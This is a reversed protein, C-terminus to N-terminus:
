AAGVPHRMGPNRAARALQALNFVLHAMYPVLLSGTALFVLSLAFGTVGALVMGLWGQPAHMWGFLVAGIVALLLSPLVVSM